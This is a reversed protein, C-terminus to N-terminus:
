TVVKRSKERAILLEAILLIFVVGMAVKWLERGYRSVTVQEDLLEQPRVIVTQEKGAFEAIKEPDLRKYESEHPDINVAWTDINKDDAYLKYFGSRDTETFQIRYQSHM